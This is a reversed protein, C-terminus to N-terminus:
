IIKLMELIDEYAKYYAQSHTDGMNLTSDLYEKVKGLSLIIGEKCDARGKAYMEM